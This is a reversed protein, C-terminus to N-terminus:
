RQEIQLEQCIVSNSTIRAYAARLRQFKQEVEVKDLSFAIRCKELLGGKFATVALRREYVNNRRDLAFRELFDISPEDSILALATILPILFGFFRTNKAEELSLLYKSRQDSVGIVGLALIGKYFRLHDRSVLFRFEKIQVEKHNELFSVIRSELDPIAKGLVIWDEFEINSSGKLADTEYRSGSLRLDSLQYLDLWIQVAQLRSGNGDAEDSHTARSQVLYTNVSGFAIFLVLGFHRLIDTFNM